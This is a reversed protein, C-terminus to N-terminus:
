KWFTYRKQKEIEWNPNKICMTKHGGYGTPNNFEKGCYPCLWIKNYKKKNPNNNCRVEHQKLANLSKFEKGCYQCKYIKNDNHSEILNILHNLKDNEKIRKQCNPCLIKIRNKNFLCGIKINIIEGCKFCKCKITKNILLNIKNDIIEIKELLAPKYLKIWNYIEKKSLELKNFGFNNLITCGKCSYATTNLISNYSINKILGCRKCKVKIKSRLQGNWESIIEFRNLFDPNKEKIEDYLKNIRENFVEQRRILHSCHKKCRWSGIRIINNLDEDYIEGCHKCKVKIHSQRVRYYDGLIEIHNLLDPHNKNISELLNNNYDKRSHNYECGNMHRKLSFQHDFEKGCYLCIYKNKEINFYHFEQLHLEKTTNFSKHCLSCYYKEDKHPNLKCTEEHHNICQVTYLNHCYRCEKTSYVKQVRNPNLKCSNEHVTRGITSEYEKGCYQCIYKM